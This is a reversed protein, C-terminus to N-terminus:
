TTCHNMQIARQLCPTQLLSTDVPPSETYPVIVICLKMVVGVILNDVALKLLNVVILSKVNVSM